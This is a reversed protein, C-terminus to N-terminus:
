CVDGAAFADDVWRGPVGPRHLIEWWNSDLDEIMFSVAGDDSRVLDTVTRIDFHDRYELADAHATEVDGVSDMDLIWRNEPGQRHMAKGSIVCAVMWLGGHFISMAAKHHRRCGIGLFDRYFTLTKSPDGVQLTGHSFFVPRNLQEGQM